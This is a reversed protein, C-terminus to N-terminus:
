LLKMPNCEVKMLNCDVIAMMIKMVERSLVILCMVMHDFKVISVNYM